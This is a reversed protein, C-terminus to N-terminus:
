FFFILSIYLFSSRASRYRPSLAATSSVPILGVKYGEQRIVGCDFHAEVYKRFEFYITVTLFPSLRLIRVKENSFLLLPLFSNSFESM